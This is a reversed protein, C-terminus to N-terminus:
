CDKKIYGFRIGEFVAQAMTKVELKTFIQKRYTKVTSVEINMFNAIASATLGQSALLLCAVERSTLKNDFMLTKEVPFVITSLFTRMVRLQRAKPNANGLKLLLQRSIFNLNIVHSRANM